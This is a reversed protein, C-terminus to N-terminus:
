CSGRPNWQAFMGTPNNQWAWVHLDYHIPMGPEHGVMPGQFAQGLLSPRDTDTATSQDEDVKFYELAVLKRGGETPQYVLIAPHRLDIPQDLLSPEVYHYGMAGAPSSVCTDTPIYGDVTATAVDHYAATAARVAAVSDGPGASATGAAVPAVVAVAAASVLGAKIFNIRM